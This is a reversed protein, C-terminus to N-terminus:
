EFPDRPGGDAVVDSQGFEAFKNATPVMASIGWSAVVSPSAPYARIESGVQDVIILADQGHKACIDEIRNIVATANMKPKVPAFAVALDARLNTEIGSPGENVGWASSAKTTDDQQIGASGLEEVLAEFPNIVAAVPDAVIVKRNKTDIIVWAKEPHAALAETAIAGLTAVRPTSKSVADKLAQSSGLPALVTGQKAM